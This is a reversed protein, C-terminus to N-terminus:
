EGPEIHEITIKLVTYGIEKFRIRLQEELDEPGQPDEMIILIKKM